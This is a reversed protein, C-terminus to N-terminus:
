CEYRWGKGTGAGAPSGSQQTVQEKLNKHQKTLLALEKRLKVALRMLLRNVLDVDM